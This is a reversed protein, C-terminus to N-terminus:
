ARREAVPIYVLVLQLATEGRKDLAHVGCTELETDPILGFHNRRVAIEVASMGIPADVGLSACLAKRATLVHEIHGAGLHAVVYELLHIRNKGLVVDVIHLPVEVAVEGLCGRGSEARIALAFECM